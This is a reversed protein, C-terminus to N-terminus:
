QILAYSIGMTFVSMHILSAKEYMQIPNQQPFFFLCFFKDTVTISFGLIEQGETQEM